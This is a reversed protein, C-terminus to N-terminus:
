SVQGHLGCSNNSGVTQLSHTRTFSIGVGHLQIEDLEYMFALHLVARAREKNERGSDISSGILLLPTSNEVLKICKNRCDARQQFGM